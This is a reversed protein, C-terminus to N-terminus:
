SGIQHLLSVAEQHGPALRLLKGLHDRAANRNGLRVYIKALNLHASIYNPDLRLVNEFGEIAKQPDEKQMYILALNYRAQVLLPDLRIAQQYKEIAEDRRRLQNLAYAQNFFIMKQLPNLRIAEDFYRVAAAYDGSLFAIKGLGYYPRYDMGHELKARFESELEEKKGSECLVNIYSDFAFFMNEDLEVSRRFAEAARSLLELKEAGSRINAMDAYAVGINNYATSALHKDGVQATEGFVTAAEEYRHTQIYIQGIMQQLALRDAPDRINNLGLRAVELARDFQRRNFYIMALSNYPRAKSPSKEIVDSWLRVEDRWVQNRLVTATGFALLLFAGAATTGVPLRLPLLAAVRGILLPFALSLGMLPLYLRHEFILDRIPIVSSTPALTIFFWLIAFSALPQRTRWHWALGLVAALVAFSAMVSLELPGASPRFDYDVNLGAPLAVLRMYTVIVRLQTLFYQWSSIRSVEAGVANALGGTVLLYVGALEGAAFTIYFRWRALIGRARARSLFLFDYALLVAPMSVVTEKTLLGLFFPVAVVVSWLFGIRDPDRKIFILTALGYFFASLLESRSSIYTVSETQVPHVLFFAAALLGYTHAAAATAAGSRRLIHVAILFVLIGNVVHLIFNVAHYGWVEQGHLRHNIAFSLYLIPRTTWISPRLNDGFQVGSNAQITLLDDFVLPVDFSNCYALGALIVLVAV